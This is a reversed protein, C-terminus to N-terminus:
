GGSPVDKDADRAMLEDIAERVSVKSSMLDAAEKMRTANYDLFDLRAQDKERAEIWAVGATGLKRAHQKVIDMLSSM